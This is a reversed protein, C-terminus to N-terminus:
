KLQRRALLEKEDPTLMAYFAAAHREPMATRAFRLLINIWRLNFEGRALSDNVVSILEDLDMGVHKMNAAKWWRMGACDHVTLADRGKSRARARMGDLVYIYLEISDEIPTM